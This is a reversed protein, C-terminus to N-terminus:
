PRGQSIGNAADGILSKVPAVLARDTEAFCITVSLGVPFDPYRAANVSLTEGALLRDINDRTVGVVIAQTGHPGTALATVM